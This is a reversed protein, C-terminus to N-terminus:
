WHGNVALGGPGASLSLAVPGAEVPRHFLLPVGIGIASGLLAGTLVDTFYHKDAVMRLLGTTVAIPTGVALMLWWMRYGRLRAITAGAAVLSFTYSTHGSFFSLNNDEPHSTTLKEAPPLEAAFPRERAVSFKVAQNLAQSTVMAELILLADVLFDKWSAGDQWVLVADLGALALPMLVVGTLDSATAAAKQRDLPARIARLAEDLGNRACWRCEDPALQAKFAYESLLWWAGLGASVPLDVRPDWQLPAAALYAAAIAGLMSV